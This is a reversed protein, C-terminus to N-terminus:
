ARPPSWEYVHITCVERFGLREYVRQGMPSSGLVGVRFGLDRGAVLAAHSIAGGIGRGRLDPVTSVFYLGAAGAHLFLSATAVPRDGIRGVYHRWATEDGSGIRSYMACVWSAEKPGEGFGRSLVDEYADLDEDSAVRGIRLREIPPPALLADLDAAMGPEVTGEFGQVILREGLASPRMSPGVHWSGPVAKAAMVERSRAIEADARDAPLDARVVANHYAIPSGGITWAIDPEDREEGGGARGLALLFGIENLEVAQAVADPTLDTLNEM